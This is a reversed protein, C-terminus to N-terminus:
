ILREGRPFTSQFIPLLRSRHKMPTTGWAPVHISIFELRYKDQPHLREGCPFTSQFKAAKITPYKLMMDNGVRSRPNFHRKGVLAQYIGSTTGWVPVHISICIILFILIQITDNGM